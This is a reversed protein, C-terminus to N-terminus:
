GTLEIMEQGYLMVIIVKMKKQVFLIQLIWLGSLMEFVMKDLFKRLTLGCKRIIRQLIILNLNMKKTFM